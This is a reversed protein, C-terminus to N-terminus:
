EDPNLVKMKQEHEWRLRAAVDDPDLFSSTEQEEEKKIKEVKKKVFLEVTKLREYIERSFYGGLFLAILSIVWAIIM